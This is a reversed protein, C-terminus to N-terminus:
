RVIESRGGKAPNAALSPRATEDVAQHLRALTAAPLDILRHDTV